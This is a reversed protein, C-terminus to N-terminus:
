GRDTKDPANEIMERVLRRATLLDLVRERAELYRQLRHALREIRLGVESLIPGAVEWVCVEGDADCIAQGTRQVGVIEDHIMEGLTRQAMDLLDGHRVDLATGEELPRELQRLLYDLGNTPRAAYAWRLGEAVARGLGVAQATLAELSPTAAPSAGETGASAPAGTATLFSRTTTTM